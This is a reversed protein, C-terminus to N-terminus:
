EEAPDKSLNDDGAREVNGFETLARARLISAERDLSASSAVTQFELTGLYCASCYMESSDRILPTLGRDSSTAVVSKCRRCIGVVWLM